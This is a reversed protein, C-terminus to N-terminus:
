PDHETENMIIKNTDIQIHFNSIIKMESKFHCNVVVIDSVQLHDGMQPVWKPSVFSTAEITKLGAAALRKIFEIKVEAFFSKNSQTLLELM